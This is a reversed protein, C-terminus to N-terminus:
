MANIFDDDIPTISADTYAKADSLASSAAGETDADVDVATLVVDGIRGNVSTVAGGSDTNGGQATPLADGTVYSISANCYQSTSTIYTGVVGDTNVQVIGTYGGPNPMDARVDHTPRYGQPLTCLEVYDGSKGAYVNAFDVFVINGIRRYNITDTDRVVSKATQARSDYAINGVTAIAVTKGCITATVVSDGKACQCAKIANANVEVSKGDAIGTGALQVSKATVGSVKAFALNTQASKGTYGLLQALEDTNSM